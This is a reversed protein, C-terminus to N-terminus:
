QQFVIREGFLTRLRPKIAAVRAITWENETSYVNGAQRQYFSAPANIDAVDRALATLAAELAPGPEASSYQYWAALRMLPLAGGKEKHLHNVGRALLLDILDFDGQSAAWHLLNSGDADAAGIALGAREAAALVAEWNGAAGDRPMSAEMFLFVPARPLSADTRAGAKVLTAMMSVDKAIAAFHLPGPSRTGSATEVQLSPDAGGRLLLAAMDAHGNFAAYQLPTLPALATKGPDPLRTNVDAGKAILLEATNLAQNKAACALAADLTAKEPKLQFAFLTDLRRRRGACASKQFAMQMLDGSALNETWANIDNEYDRDNVALYYHLLTFRNAYAAGAGVVLVALLSLMWARGTSVRRAPAPAPSAPAPVAAPREGLSQLSLAAWLVLVVAFVALNSLLSLVGLVTIALSFQFDFLSIFWGQVTSLGWQILLSLVCSLPLWLLTRRLATSAVTAQITKPSAHICLSCRMQYSGLMLLVPLLPLWSWPRPLFFAAVMCVLGVLVLLLWAGIFRWASPLPREPLELRMAEAVARAAPPCWCRMLVPVMMVMGAVGALGGLGIGLGGAVLSTGAFQAGFVMLHPSALVFAALILLPANLLGRGLALWFRGRVLIVGTSKLAAVIDFVSGM